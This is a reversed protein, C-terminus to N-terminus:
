QHAGTDSSSSIDIEVSGPVIGQPLQAPIGRRVRPTNPAMEERGQVTVGAMAGAFLFARKRSRFTNVDRVARGDDFTTTVTVRHYDGGNTEVVADISFGDRDASFTKVHSLRSDASSTQMNTAGNLM